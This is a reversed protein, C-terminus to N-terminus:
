AHADVHADDSDQQQDEDDAHNQIRCRFFLHDAPPRPYHGRAERDEPTKPKGGDLASLGGVNANSAPPPSPNGEAM